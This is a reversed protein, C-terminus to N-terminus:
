EPRTFLDKLAAVHVEIGMPQCETGTFLNALAVVDVEIEMPQHETENVFDALAAVHVETGMPQCETRTFNGTCCCAGQNVNLGLPVITLDDGTEISM